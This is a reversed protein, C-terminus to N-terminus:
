LIAYLRPHLHTKKEEATMNYTIEETEKPETREEKTTKPLLLSPNILNNFDSPHLSTYDKLAEL